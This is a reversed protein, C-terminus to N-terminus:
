IVEQKNTEAVPEEEPKIIRKTYTSEVNATKAEKPTRPQKEVKEQTDKVVQDAQKQQNKVIEKLRIQRLKEQESTTTIDKKFLQIDM